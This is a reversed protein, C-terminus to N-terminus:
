SPVKSDDVVSVDDNDDEVDFSCCTSLTPPIVDIPVFSACKISRTRGSPICPQDDPTSIGEDVLMKISLSPVFLSLSLSGRTRIGMGSPAM